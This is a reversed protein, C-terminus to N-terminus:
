RAAELALNRTGLVNSRWFQSDDQNARDVHSEAAFNIIADPNVEDVVARIGPGDSIDARIDHVGIVLNAEMSGWGGNDVGYIDYTHCFLKCFASGIFGLHGTILLRRYTTM